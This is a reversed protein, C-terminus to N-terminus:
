SFIVRATISRGLTIEDAYELDGGMPIGRAISTIEHYKGFAATSYGNLRLMEALPAVSAIKDIAASSFVPTRHIFPKIREHAEEIDQRTIM